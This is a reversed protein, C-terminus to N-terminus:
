PEVTARKERREDNTSAEGNQGILAGVDVFM